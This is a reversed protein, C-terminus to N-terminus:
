LSALCPLVCICVIFVQYFMRYSWVRSPTNCITYEVLRSFYYGVIYYQMNVDHLQLLTCAKNTVTVYKNYMKCRTHLYKSANAVNLWPGSNVFM